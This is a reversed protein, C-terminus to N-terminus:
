PEIRDIIGDERFIPAEPLDRVPPLPTAPKPENEDLWSSAARAREGANLAIDTFFLNVRSPRYRAGWGGPEKLEAEEPASVALVGNACQATVAGPYTKPTEAAAGLPHAAGKHASRASLAGTVDWTVPNICALNAGAKKRAEAAGAVVSTWAVACQFDTATKCASVPLGADAAVGADILYAAALRRKSAEDAFRDKLLRAAHKGGQGVGAIIVGRGNNDSAMYHDFARLVDSYALDLAQGADEGSTVDAYLSAQRYRPAYIPGGGRFAGAHTPLITEELRRMGNWDDLPANWRGGHASTPHIFFVDIGWPKEWAGPPATEPRIAWSEASAYDPRAPARESAMSGSPRISALYLSEQFAFGGGIAAVALAGAGMLVKKSTKM